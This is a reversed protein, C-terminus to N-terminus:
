LNFQYLLFKVLILVPLIEFTCLYIFFQFFNNNWFDLSIILGRIIKLLVVIFLFFLSLYIFFVSIKDPAFASILNIPLLIIGAFIHYSLISFSYLSTAKQISFINGLIFLLIHKIVYFLGLGLFIYVWDMSSSVSNKTKLFLFILISANVFFISYLLLQSLSIVAGEERQFLKFMNINFLSRFVLKILSLNVNIVIALLASIFLLLWFIFNNSQSPIVETKEPLNKKEVSKSGFTKRLPIHDVDFPNVERTNFSDISLRSLSSDSVLDTTTEPISITKVNTQVKAVSDLRSRIEFPNNNQSQLTIVFLFQLFTLFLIRNIVNSM